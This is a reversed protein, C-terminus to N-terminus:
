GTVTEGCFYKFIDASIFRNTNPGSETRYRRSTVMAEHIPTAQYLIVTIIKSIWSVYLLDNHSDKYIILKQYITQLIIDYNQLVTIKKAGGV